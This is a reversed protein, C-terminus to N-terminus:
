KNLLLAVKDSYSWRIIRYKNKILYNELKEDMKDNLHKFEYNIISPRIREIECAYIVNDDAGETDIQIVDVCNSFDCDKLFMNLKKCKPNIEEICKELPLNIKLYIRVNNMVYKKNYSTIGSPARYSPANKLYPQKFYQWLEPKIRFLTLEKNTGVAGEVIRIHPHNKYNEKLISIIESQPEILLANTSCKNEMLFNYIPDNIKGDNAGIQIININKKSLLFGEMITEFFSYTNYTKKIDLNLKKILYRRINKNITKSINLKM